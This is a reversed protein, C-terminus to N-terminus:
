HQYDARQTLKHAPDPGTAIELLLKRRVAEKFSTEGDATVVFSAPGGIITRAFADELDYGSPRGSCHRCLIALGNITIDANLAAERAVALPTGNWNNASDASIDIVKRYGSMTNGEIAERAADIASGIANRGNAKRPTTVLAEAFAEASAADSIITWPVVVEQSFQDGFEMFTVAIKQDFGQAIAALVQPDTIASAYGQRQFAIEANDISGTADALLVLELDVREGEQAQAEFSLGLALVLWGILRM